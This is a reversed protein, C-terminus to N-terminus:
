LEVEDIMSLSLSFFIPKLASLLIRSSPHGLRHHWLLLHRPKVIIFASTQFPSFCPTSSLNSLSPIPYIGDKSLGAYFIKGMPLDQILFKHSNFNMCYSKCAGMSSKKNIDM